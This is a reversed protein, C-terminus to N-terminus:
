WLTQSVNFAAHTNADISSGRRGSKYSQQEDVYTVVNQKMDFSERLGLHFFLKAQYARDTVDAVAISCSYFRDLAETEGFDLKEFPIREIKYRLEEAAKKLADFGRTGEKTEPFVAILLQKRKPARQLTSSRSSSNGEVSVAAM